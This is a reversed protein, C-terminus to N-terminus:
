VNPDGIELEGFQELPRELERNFMAIKTESYLSDTITKALKYVGTADVPTTDGNILDRITRALVSRLQGTTKIDRVPDRKM